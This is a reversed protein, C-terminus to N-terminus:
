LQQLRLRLSGRQRELERTNLEAQERTAQEQEQAEQLQATLRQANEQQERANRQAHELATHTDRIRARGPGFSASPARAFPRGRDGVNSGDSPADTPHLALGALSPLAM